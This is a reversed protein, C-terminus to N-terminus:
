QDTPVVVSLVDKTLPHKLHRYEPQRAKEMLILPNELSDIEYQLKVVEQKLKEVERAMAPIQLRLSTIANQKHIYIYLFAGLCVVCIILRILLSHNM